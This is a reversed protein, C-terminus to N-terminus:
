FVVCKKRKMCKVIAGLILNKGKSKKGSPLNKLSPFLLHFIQKKLVGGEQRPFTKRTRM